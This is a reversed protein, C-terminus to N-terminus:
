EVFNFLKQFSLNALMVILLYKKCIIKRQTEGRSADLLNINSESPNKTIFTENGIRIKTGGETSSDRLQVKNEQLESTPISVPKEDESKTSEENLIIATKTVEDETLTPEENLITTKKKAEDETMASVENLIATREVYKCGKRRMKKENFNPNPEEIVEMKDPGVKMGGENYYPVETGRTIEVPPARWNESNNYYEKIIYEIGKEKGANYYLRNCGHSDHRLYGFIDFFFGGVSVPLIMALGDHTYSPEFMTHITVYMADNTNFYFGPMKFEYENEPGFLNTALSMEKSVTAFNMKKDKRLGVAVFTYDYFININHTENRRKLCETHSCEHLIITATKKEKDSIVDIKMWSDKNLIIHILIERARRNDCPEFGIEFIDTKWTLRESRSGTRCSDNVNWDCFFKTCVYGLWMGSYENSNILPNKCPFLYTKEYANLFMCLYVIMLLFNM